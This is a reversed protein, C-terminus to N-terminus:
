ITLASSQISELTDKPIFRTSLRDRKKYQFVIKIYDAELNNNNKNKGLLFDKKDEFSDFIKSSAKQNCKSCAV